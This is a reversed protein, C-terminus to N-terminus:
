YINVRYGTRFIPLFLKVAEIFVPTPESLKIVFTRNYTIRLIM